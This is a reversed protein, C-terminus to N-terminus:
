HCLELIKETNIKKFSYDNSIKEILYGDSADQQMIRGVYNVTNDANIQKSLHLVANGYETLQITISQLNSYKSINSIVKGTFTTYDSFILSVTQGEAVNFADSLMTESCILKDPKGSFITPKSTQCYATTTLTLLLMVFSHQLLKM